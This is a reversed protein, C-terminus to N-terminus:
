DVFFRITKVLVDEAAEPLSNGIFPHKVGFTHDGGEITLLSAKRASRKLELADSYQVAMDNTGHVILFPIELRKVAHNVNLREKNTQQDEFFQYYLPMQQQTRANKAYVVGEKQWTEITKKKNRDTLNSVAAWTALKKVRTDEGAKIICIAGGRSHGLLGLKKEDYETKLESNNLLWDIVSKLDDLEKTFNNNGFADLDGFNLPDEITTGNHSFNFKVFMCDTEAFREGILNFHGWDKFGKFGHCFIVLPKAIGNCKYFLDLLITKNSSGPIAINKIIKM